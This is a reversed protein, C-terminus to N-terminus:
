SELVRAAEDDDLVEFHGRDLAELRSSSEARQADSLEKPTISELLEVIIVARDEEPLAIAAVILKQAENSM